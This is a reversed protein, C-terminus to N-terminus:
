GALQWRITRNVGYNETTESECGLFTLFERNRQKTNMQWHWLSSVNAREHTLVSSMIALTENGDCLTTTGKARQCWHMGCWLFIGAPGRPSM